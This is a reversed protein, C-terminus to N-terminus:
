KIVAIKETLEGEETKIKIFYIGNEFKSTNIKLSKEGETEIRNKVKGRIDLVTIQLLASSSEITILEKAPNPFISIEPVPSFEKSGTYISVTGLYCTDQQCNNYNTSVAYSYEGVEWITDIAYNASISDNIIEDNRWLSCNYEARNEAEPKIPQIRVAPSFQEMSTTSAVNSAPKYIGQAKGSSQIYVEHSGVYYYWFEGLETFDGISGFYLSGDYWSDDIGVSPGGPLTNFTAIMFKNTEMFVPSFNVQIWDDSPGNEIIFPGAIIENGYENLIYVECPQWYKEYCSNFYRLSGIYYEDWNQVSFKQALGAGGDTSCIANEFSGDDMWYWCGGSLQWYWALEVVSFDTNTEIIKLGKSVLTPCSIEININDFQWYKILSSNEGLCFFGIKVISNAGINIKVTRNTWDENIHANHTGATHWQCNTWYMIHLKETAASGSNTQVKYDFSLKLQGDHAMETNIYDSILRCDYDLLQMQGNFQVCPSPNGQDAVLEWNNCQTEWNNTEFSLSEWNESFPLEKGLGFQLGIPIYQLSSESQEGPFGWVSLDYVGTVAIQYNCPLWSITADYIISDGTSYPVWEFFANDKYINFGLLNAPISDRSPWPARPANWVLQKSGNIHINEPPYLWESTFNFLSTDLLGSEYNTAVGSVYETGYVLNLYQHNTAETELIFNDDLFVAYNGTPPWDANNPAFVKVNDIALGAGAQSADDLHFKIKIQSAGETDWGSFDSLDITKQSWNAITDLSELQQWTNGGNNSISVLAKQGANTKSFFYNFSLSFNEAQRLNIQRTILIDNCDFTSVSDNNNVCAYKTEREPIFFSTSSGDNTQFWGPCNSAAQWGEPPFVLNEFNESLALQEPVKWSAMSTKTDVFLDVVPWLSEKLQIVISTDSHILVNSDCYDELNLRSIKLCYTGEWAHEILCTTDEGTLAFYEKYPFDLGSITVEAQTAPNDINTNLIFSVNFYNEHGVINSLTYDSYKPGNQNSLAAVGYAYWAPDLHVFGTDTYESSLTSDNLILSDGALPSTNPDFNSFRTIKYALANRADGDNGPNIDVKARIMFDKYPSITWYNTQDVFLYSKNEIPLETDIGIPVASPPLSDQYMAIYFSGDTIEVDFNEFEVWLYNNVQISQSALVDKPKGNSGNDDLVKITFTSGLFNAGVPFSGDGVYLQGGKVRCPYGPPTFKVAHANGITTFVLYDEATGDDYFLTQPPGPPTWDINCETDLQNVDAIVFGPGYLTEWLGVDITLNNGTAAVVNEETHDQYGAKQYSIDYTGEILTISYFGNTDSACNYTGSSVLAGSLLEGTQIDSVIGSITCTNMKEQASLFEPIGFLIAQSLMLIIFTKVATKM